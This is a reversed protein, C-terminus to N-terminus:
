IKDSLIRGYYYQMIREEVSLIDSTTELIRNTTETIQEAAAIAKPYKRRIIEESIEENTKHDGFRTYRWILYRDKLREIIGM